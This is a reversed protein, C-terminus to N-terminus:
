IGYRGRSAEFNQAVEVDSLAKNYISVTSIKGNFSSNWGAFTEGSVGIGFINGNGTTDVYTGQSVFIGNKYTRITSNTSNAVACLQIWSSTSGSGISVDVILPPGNQNYASFAWISGNYRFGLRSWSGSGYGIAPMNLSPGSGGQIGLVWVIWTYNTNVFQSSNLTLSTTVNPTENYVFAGSSFSISNNVTASLRSTSLDSWTTGTAPYSRSNMADLHLILGDNVIEPGAFVAM